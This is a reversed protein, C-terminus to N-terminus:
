YGDIWVNWLMRCRFILQLKPCICSSINGSDGLSTKATGYVFPGFRKGNNEYVFPHISYVTGRIFTLEPFGKGFGCVVFRKMVGCEQLPCERDVVKENSKLIVYDEEECIHVVTAEYQASSLVSIVRVVTLDKVYCLHTGHRFTVLYHTTLAVVCSKFGNEEIFFLFANVWDLNHM